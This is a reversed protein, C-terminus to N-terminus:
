ARLAKSEFPFQEVFYQIGANLYNALEEHYRDFYSKLKSNQYYLTGLAHYAEKSPVFFLKIMEYHQQILNQVYSSTVTRKNKLADTLKSYIETSKKEIEEWDEINWKKIRARIQNM